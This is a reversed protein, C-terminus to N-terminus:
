SGLPLDTFNHRVGFLNALALIFGAVVLWKNRSGRWGRLGRLYLYAAYCLWTPVAMWVKTDRPGLYEGPAGFMWVFGMGLGLTFFFFGIGAAHFAVRASGELPPLHRNLKGHKLFRAQILYAAAACFALAFGVHGLLALGVHVGLWPYTLLLSEAGELRIPMLLPYLLALTALPLLLLNLHRFRTNREVLLGTLLTVIIVPSVMLLTNSLPPRGSFVLHLVFGLSHVGLGAAMVRHGWAEWEWSTRHLLLNGMFLLGAGMYLLLSLTMFAICAATM